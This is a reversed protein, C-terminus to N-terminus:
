ASTDGPHMAEVAEIVADSFKDASERDLWTILPIYKTKGREDKLVTDGSVQVKSPMSAWRKGAACHVGVDSIKLAKGLRITAFGRLSNRNLPKWELLVLYGDNSM